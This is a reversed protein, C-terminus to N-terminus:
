NNLVRFILGTNGNSGNAGNTATFGGGDVKSGGSGGSGGAVSITGTNDLIFYVLAIIGGSGGGGGGGGAAADTVLIANGGNGGNGGLSQINGRNFIKNSFIAVGGGSGGSGGGGGSTSGNGNSEGGGGGSGSGASIGFATGSTSGTLYAKIASLVTENVGTTSGTITGSTTVHVPFTVSLNESTITGAGGAAGSAGVGSTGGGAGGSVGSVGIGTVNTGITGPGGTAATTKGVGGIQGNKGAQLTGGLGGIGSTGATPAAGDGGNTGNNHITGYNTVVSSYIVYGGTIVTVGVDITIFTCQIDRTLTYTNNVPTIGLVVSTGTFVVDGDSGDGYVTSGGSVLYGDIIASSGISVDGRARLNNVEMNGEADLKWGGIDKVYNQSNFEGAGLISGTSSDSINSSIANPNTYGQADPTASTQTSLYYQKLEEAM